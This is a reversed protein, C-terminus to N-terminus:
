RIRVQVEDVLWVHRERRCHTALDVDAHGALGEDGATDVDHGAARFIALAARPQNEDLKLLM